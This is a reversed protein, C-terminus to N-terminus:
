YYSISTDLLVKVIVILLTLTSNTTTANSINLTSSMTVPGVMTTNGSVNFSSLATIMNNFTGTGAVNLNHNAIIPGKKIKNFSM